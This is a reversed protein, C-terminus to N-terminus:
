FISFGFRNQVLHSKVLLSPAKQPTKQPTSGPPTPLPLFGQIVAFGGPYKSQYRNSEKNWVVARENGGPNLYHVGNLEQNFPTHTHGVVVHNVPQNLAPPRYAAVAKLQNPIDQKEAVKRAFGNGVFDLMRTQTKRGIPAATIARDPSLEELIQHRKALFKLTKGLGKMGLRHWWKTSQQEIQNLRQLRDALEEYLAAAVPGKNTELFESLYAGWNKVPRVHYLDDLQKALRPLATSDLQQYAKPNNQELRQLVSQGLGNLMVIDVTEGLNNPGCCTADVQHGHHVLTKLRPHYYHGNTAIEFTNGLIRRDSLWTFFTTRGEDSALWRDHNGPVIVVRRNQTDKDVFDALSDWFLSNAQLEQRILGAAVLNQEDLPMKAPPKEPHPWDRTLELIDGNLVVTFPKDVPAQELTEFFPALQRQREKSSNYADEPQLSLHIDGIVELTEVAPSSSGGKPTPPLSQASAFHIKSGVPMGLLLM